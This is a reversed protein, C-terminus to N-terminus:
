GTVVHVHLVYGARNIGAYLAECDSGAGYIGYARHNKYVPSGSSGGELGGHKVKTCINVKVLNNVYAPPNLGIAREKVIREVGQVIGCAEQQNPVAKEEGVGGICVTVENRPVTENYETGIINYHEDRTTELASNGYVILAPALPDEGWFYGPTIAILGEDGKSTTGGLGENTSGYVFSHAKGINQLNAERSQANAESEGTAHYKARWLQGVGAAGKICHGATMVYPKQDTNSRVIFGATCEPAIAAGRIRVGGRLPHGCAGYACDTPTPELSAATSENVVTPVTQEAIAKNLETNESSSLSSSKTVLVADKDPVLEITIHGAELLKSLTAALSSESEELQKWSAPETVIDAVEALGYNDLDQEVTREYGASTIGIKIHGSGPDFWQGTYNPGLQSSLQADLTVAADQLALDSTAVGPSLSAYEAYFASAAEQTSPQELTNGFQDFYYTGESADPHTVVTSEVSYTFRTIEDESGAKAITGNVIKRLSSVRKQEDYAVVWIGSEDTISELMKSTTYYTYKTKTGVPNTVTEVRGEKYTYAWSEGTSSKLKTIDHNTPERTVTITHGHTDKVESLRESSYGLSITNGEGGADKIETAAGYALSNFKWEIATGGFSLTRTKDSHEVLTDAVGAEGTFARDGAAPHGDAWPARDFRTFGSGPQLFRISGDWPTPYVKHDDGKNLRWDGFSSNGFLLDDQSNYERGLETSYGATAYNVDHNLVNLNGNAVNVNIVGNGIGQQYVQGLPPIAFRPEYIVELNPEPAGETNGDQAFADYGAVTENQAKLLVGHNSKPERIWQEVLPTFGFHLEKGIESHNVVTEGAITKLFDGGPTSWANTGDYTNWTTGTTFSRSLARAEVTIPSTTTDWSFCMRLSSKMIVSGKPVSSTDFYLLSRAVNKPSASDPGVYLHSGCEKTNAHANSSIPCGPAEKFYVEPDITVPFVRKPDNLWAKDLALTLVSGDASLEYHVPKTVPL